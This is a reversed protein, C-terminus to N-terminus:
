RVVDLQLAIRVAVSTEEASWGLVEIFYCSMAGALNQVMHHRNGRDAKCYLEALAAGAAGLKAGHGGMDAYSEQFESATKTM